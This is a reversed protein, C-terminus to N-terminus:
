RNERVILRTRGDNFESFQFFAEPDELSCNPYEVSDFPDTFAFTGYGGQETLFFMELADLEEEDLMSLQIVWRRLGGPYERFRQEGGDVFRLVHTSYRTERRAPYQMVAGTKLTPFDSM